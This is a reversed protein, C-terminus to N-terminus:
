WLDSIAVFHSVTALDTKVNDRVKAYLAPLATRSFYSRSPIEYRSDFAEVLKKFGPKEVAYISASFGKSHLLGRCRHTGEM